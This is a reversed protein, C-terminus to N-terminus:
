PLTDIYAGMEGGEGRYGELLGNLTHCQTSRKVLKKSKGSFDIMFSGGLKFVPEGEKVVNCGNVIVTWRSALVGYGKVVDNTFDGPIRHVM